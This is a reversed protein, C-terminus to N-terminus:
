CGFRYHRKGFTENIRLINELMQNNILTMKSASLFDRPQAM